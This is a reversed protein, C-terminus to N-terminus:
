GYLTTCDGWVGGDRGVDKDVSGWVGDYFCTAGGKDVSGKGITSIYKVVNLSVSTWATHDTMVHRRKSEKRGTQQRQPRRNRHEGLGGKGGVAM